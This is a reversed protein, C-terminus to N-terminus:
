ERLKKIWDFQLKSNVIIHKKTRKAMAMSIISNTLSLSLAKWIKTCAFVYILHETKGESQPKASSRFFLFKKDRIESLEIRFLTFIHSSLCNAKISDSYIICVSKWHDVVVVRVASVYNFIQLLSCLSDTSNRFMFLFHWLLVFLRIWNSLLSLWFNIPSPLLDTEFFAALAVSCQLM